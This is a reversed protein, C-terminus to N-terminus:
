KLKIYEMNDFAHCNFELTLSKCVIFPWAMATLQLTVLQEIDQDLPDGHKVNPNIVGMKFM